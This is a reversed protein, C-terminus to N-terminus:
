HPDEPNVFPKLEKEIFQHPRWGKSLKDILFTDAASLAIGAPTNVIGVFTCVLFRLNRVTSNNTWSKSNMNAMYDAVMNKDPELTSTWARLPASKDLLQIFEKFTRQNSNILEKIPSANQLIVEEFLKITDQDANVKKLIEQHRIKIIESSLNSTYIDGGYFASLLTDSKALLIQALFNSLTFPSEESTVSNRLKLDNFDIDTEITFGQLTPIAKINFPGVESSGKHHELLRRSTEHLLSTDNLELQATKFIGNPVFFDSNYKRVRVKNLFKVAFSSAAMRSLNCHKEFQYALRRHPTEMLSGDSDGVITYSDFSFHKYALSINQVILYDEIYVASINDRSILELIQDSGISNVLSILSGPEFVIHVHQYFFMAQALEGPTLPEGHESRMLVIKNFM